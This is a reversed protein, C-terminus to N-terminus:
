ELDTPSHCKVLHDSEDADTQTALSVEVEHTIFVSVRLPNVKWSLSVVEAIVVASSLPAEPIIFM